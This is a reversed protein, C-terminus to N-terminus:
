GAFSAPLERLKGDAMEAWRNIWAPVEEPQHTAMIISPEMGAFQGSAIRGLLALFSGRSARDLGSCPEDLLLIEPKNSLARALYLRRLQGSSLRRISEGAIRGNDERDFFLGILQRAWAIESEGFERYLGTTNDYGSLVLELGTLDYGYLAQGLDSVLSAFARRRPLSEILRGSAWQRFVGGAYVFEDGALLRLFTSKGAGNAGTILWHEGARMQWRIDRLVPKRDIYVSVNALECLPEGPAQPPSLQPPPADKSPSEAPKEKYLRGERMYLSEKIWEPLASDRHSAFVMTVRDARRALADLALKQHRGDLGDNWEDLLLLPPERLLERAILALRLQGQSLEPLSKELLDSAGLEAMLAAIEKKYAPDAKAAYSFPANDKAGALLDMVAIQWGAAQCQAQIYPSVLGSVGRGAIPSREYGNPTKWLIQGNAPWLDGHIFRLLSTKGSGNPGYLAIHRGKHIELSINQLALERPLKGPIFLSTDEIKVLPTM